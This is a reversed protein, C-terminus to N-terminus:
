QEIRHAVKITTALEEGYASVLFANPTADWRIQQVVDFVNQAVTTVGIYVCLTTRPQQSDISGVSRRVHSELLDHLFQQGPNRKKAGTEMHEEILGALNDVFTHRQDREDEFTVYDGIHPFDLHKHPADLVMDAGSLIAGFLEIDTYGMHRPSGSHKAPVTTTHVILLPAGPVMGQRLLQVATSFGGLIGVFHSHAPSCHLTVFDRLVDGTSEGEAICLRVRATLDSIDQRYREIEAITSTLEHNLEALTTM